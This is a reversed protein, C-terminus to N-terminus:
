ADTDKRNLINITHNTWYKVADDDLTNLEVITFDKHSFMSLAIETKLQADELSTTPIIFQGGGYLSLWGNENAITTIGKPPTGQEEDAVSFTIKYLKM